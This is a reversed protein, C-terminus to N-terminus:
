EIETEIYPSAAKEIISVAKFIIARDLPCMELCDMAVDRAVELTPHGDCSWVTGSGQRVVLYNGNENAKKSMKAKKSM